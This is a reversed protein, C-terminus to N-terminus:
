DTCTCPASPWDCTAPPAPRQRALWFDCIDDASMSELDMQHGETRSTRMCDRVLLLLQASFVTTPDLHGIRDKITKLDRVRPDNRIAEALDAILQKKREPTISM